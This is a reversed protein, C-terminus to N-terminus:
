DRSDSATRTRLHSLMGLPNRSSMPASTRARRVSVFGLASMLDNLPVHRIALTSTFRPVCFSLLPLMSSVRARPRRVVSGSASARTAPIVADGCVPANARVRAHTYTSGCAASVSTGSRLATCLTVSGTPSPSVNVPNNVEPPTVSVSFSSPLTM